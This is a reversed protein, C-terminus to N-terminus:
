YKATLEKGSMQANRALVSATGFGGATLPARRQERGAAWGGLGAYM